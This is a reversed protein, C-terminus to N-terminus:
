PDRSRKREETVDDVILLKNGPPKIRAENGTEVFPVDVSNLWRLFLNIERRNGRGDVVSSM